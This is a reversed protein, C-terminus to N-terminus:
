ITLNDCYIYITGNERAHNPNISGINKGINNCSDNQYISIKNDPHLKNERIEIVM